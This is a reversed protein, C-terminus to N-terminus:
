DKSIAITEPDRGGIRRVVHALKGLRDSLAGQAPISSISSQEDQTSGWFAKARNATVAAAPSEKTPPDGM